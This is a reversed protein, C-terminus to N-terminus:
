ALHKNSREVLNSEELFNPLAPYPQWAVVTYFDSTRSDFWRGGGVYHLSTPISAGAILVIYEPMEALEMDASPENPLESKSTYYWGNDYSYEYDKVTDMCKGVADIFSDCSIQMLENDRNDLKLEYEGNQLLIFANIIDQILTGLNKTKNTKM